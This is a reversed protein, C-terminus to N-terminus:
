RGSVTVGELLVTAGGHGGPFFRLDDAVGRVAGLLELLNGAIGMKEVPAELRGGRVEFGAAGLSFDGTIPDITHLGMAEAAYIGQDVSALLRERSVGSPKLYLNSSDIRPPSTYSDRMGNGTPEAKLRAATYTSHLFGRLVGGEILATERSGVGEGDFPASSYGGPLRGDDILTVQPSAVKEGLRRAFLSKGKIANDAHLAEALTSFVGATVLPDLVVVTCATAPQRAGLKARAREAAERGVQRPDLGDPGIAFGSAFGTQQEGHKGSVIVEIWCLTRSMEFADELGGSHAIAVRGWVDAYRSERCKLDPSVRRAAEEVAAAIEVKRRAPLSVVAPDFNRPLDPRPGPVPLRNAPDPRQVGALAAVREAARRLDASGLGSAFAFGVRGRQFGRLGVGLDHRLESAEVKGGSWTVSSSRIDHLYVEGAELGARRLARLGARLLTAERREPAPM